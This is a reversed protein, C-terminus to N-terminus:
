VTLFGANGHEIAKTEPSGPGFWVARMSNASLQCALPKLWNGPLV